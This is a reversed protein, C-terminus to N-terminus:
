TWGEKKSRNYIKVIARAGSHLESFDDAIDIAVHFPTVRVFEGCKCTFRVEDLWVEADVKWEELTMGYLMGQLYVRFLDHWEIGM